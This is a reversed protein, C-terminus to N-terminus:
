RVAGTARPAFVWARLLVFRSATAALNALVLVVIETLRVVQRTM